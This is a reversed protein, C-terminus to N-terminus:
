EGFAQRKRLALAGAGSFLALALFLLPRAGDGTKPIPPAAKKSWQAYLTVTGDATDTLNKVSAGDAYVVARQGSETSWGSFTYGELSFACLTLPQATDYVFAQEEMSGSVSAGGPPNPDFRVRYGVPATQARLVTKGTITLSAPNSLASSGNTYVPAAQESVWESFVYGSGASEATFRFGTGAPYGAASGFPIRSGTEQASLQEASASAAHGDTKASVTYYALRVTDSCPLTVSVGTDTGGLLVNYTGTVTLDQRSCFYQGPYTRDFDPTLSSAGGPSLLSLACQEQPVGDLSVYLSLSTDELWLPNLIIESGEAEALNLVPQGDSLRLDFGERTWGAFSAGEKTYLNLSLPEEKDFTLTQPPMSGSGGNAMYLVTYTIPRWQAYLSLTVHSGSAPAAIVSSDDYAKGTGDSKTNWGTFQYGNLHYDCPILVCTEGPPVTQDQMTGVCHTSAGAPQNGIFKVTMGGAEEEAFVASALLLAFLLALLARRMWRHGTMRM